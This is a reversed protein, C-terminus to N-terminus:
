LPSPGFFAEILAESNRFFIILIVAIIAGVILYGVFDSLLWSFDLRFKKSITFGCGECRTAGPINKLRCVPCSMARGHKVRPVKLRQECFDCRGRMGQNDLGCSSCVMLM